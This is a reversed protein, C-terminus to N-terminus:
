RQSEEFKLARIEETKEVLRLEVSREIKDIGETVTKIWKAIYNVCHMQDGTLNQAKLFEICNTVEKDM